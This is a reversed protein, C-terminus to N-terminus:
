SFHVRKIHFITQSQLQVDNERSLDFYKVIHLHSIVAPKSDEGEWAEDDEGV